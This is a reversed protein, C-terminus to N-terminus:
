PRVVRISWDVIDLDPDVVDGEPEYDATNEKIDNTRLDVRIAKNVDLPDSNRGLYDQIRGGTDTLLRRNMTLFNVQLFRLNNQEEETDALQNIFVDFQLVNGGNTPREFNIIRQQVETWQGLDIPNSPNGTRAFRYIHYPFSETPNLTNFEVFHTPQGNVFGNPNPSFIPQPNTLVPDPNEDSTARIAVFYLYNTLPDDDQATNIKGQVRMRFTIRTVNANGGNEPFKACAGLFFVAPLAKALSRVWKKSM